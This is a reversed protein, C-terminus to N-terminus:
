FFRAHALLTLALVSVSMEPIQGVSSDDVELVTVAVENVIATINIGLSIGVESEFQAAVVSAGSSVEEAFVRAESEDEFSISYLLEVSESQLRRLLVDSLRREGCVLDDVDGSSV